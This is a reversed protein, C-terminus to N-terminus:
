ALSRKNRSRPDLELKGWEKALTAAPALGTELFTTVANRM